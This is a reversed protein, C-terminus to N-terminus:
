NGKALYRTGGRLYLMKQLRRNYFKEFAPHETREDLVNSLSEDQISPFFHMWLPEQMSEPSQASVLLRDKHTREAPAQEARPVQDLLRNWMFPALVFPFDRYQHSATEPNAALLELLVMSGSRALGCIYVPRDADIRELNPQLCAGEQDGLWRWFGPTRAVLASCVDVFADTLIDNSAAV